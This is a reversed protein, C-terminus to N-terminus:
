QSTHVSPSATNASISEIDLLRPACVVFGTYVLRFRILVADYVLIGGSSPMELQKVM